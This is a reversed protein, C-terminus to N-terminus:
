NIKRITTGDIEWKDVNGCRRCKTTCTGNDDYCMIELNEYECKSCKADYNDADSYELFLDTGHVEHPEKNVGFSEGIGAFFLFFLLGYWFGLVIWIFVAFAWPFWHVFNDAHKWTDRTRAWIICVVLACLFM